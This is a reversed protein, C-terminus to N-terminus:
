LGGQRFARSNKKQRPRRSPVCTTIAVVLVGLSLFMSFRRFGERPALTALMVKSQLLPLLSLSSIFTKQVTAAQTSCVRVLSLFYLFGVFIRFSVTSFLNATGFVNCVLSYFGAVTVSTVSLSMFSSLRVSLATSTFTLSLRSDVQLLCLVRFFCYKFTKYSM